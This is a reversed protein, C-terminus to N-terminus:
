RVARKRAGAALPEVAADGVEILEEMAPVPMCWVGYDILEDVVGDIAEQDM